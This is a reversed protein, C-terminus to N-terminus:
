KAAGRREQAAVMLMATREATFAKKFAQGQPSYFSYPCASNVDTFNRAAARAESEIKELSEVQHIM